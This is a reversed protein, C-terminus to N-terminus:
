NKFEEEGFTNPYVVNMWSRPYGHDFQAVKNLREWLEEPMDWDGAVLNDRVQEIKRAGIIVSTVRSDYLLWSLAIQASSKGSKKSIEMMEDVIEFSREHWYRPVSFQATLSIRTGEDPKDKKTYKGTLIGSGLPSWAIFGMGQDECAPLIEREVDRIILNHLYQGCSLKELHQLASIGNAKLIQWAHLNSCGVYRVKGQRVLDDLARMTEEFPTFPDPGHIQYLDIYDTGMRKLSAECAEVIHKRSLGKANPTDAM